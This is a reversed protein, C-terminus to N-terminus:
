LPVGIRQMVYALRANVEDLMRRVDYLSTHMQAGGVPQEGFQIDAESTIQRAGRLTEEAAAYVMNLAGSLTATSLKLESRAEEYAQRDQAIAAAPHPATPAAYGTQM